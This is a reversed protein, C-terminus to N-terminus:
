AVEYVGQVHIDTSGSSVASVTVDSDAGGSAFQKFRIASENQGIIGVVQGSFTLTDMMVTMPKWGAVAVSPFPLGQLYLTLGGTLGTTDINGVVCSFQVIRGIKSYRGLATGPTATNGGSVADAVVPVFTGEEYDALLESTMTGSGDSTGSFDLGNGSGFEVNGSMYLNKYIEVKEASNTTNFRMYPNAGEGIQLAYNVNDALKLQAYNSGSLDIAQSEVVSILSGTSDIYWKASGATFIDLRNTNHRYLLAGNYQDTGTTGNAYYIGGESSAGSAITMGENGSGGGVVLTNANSNYSGMSSTGIGVGTADIRMREDFSAGTTFILGDSTGVNISGRVATSDKLQLYAGGGKTLILNGGSDIRVREADNTADRFALAGSTLQIRWDNTADRELRLNDATSSYVHLSSSPAGGIGVNGDGQVLMLSTGGDYTTTNTRVHLVEVDSGDNVTSIVTGDYESVNGSNHLWAVPTNAAGPNATLTLPHDPSSNSIGLHGSADVRLRESGGTMIKFDHATSTGFAATGSFTMLQSTVTGDTAEFQTGNGSTTISVTEDFVGGLPGADIKRTGQSSSDLVVFDDSAPSTATTSIDKIRKNAM